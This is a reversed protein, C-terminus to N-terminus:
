QSPYQKQQIILTKIEDLSQKTDEQNKIIPQLNLMLIEKTVVTNKLDTKIEKLEEDRQKKREEVRTELTDIKAALAQQTLLNTTYVSACGIVAVIIAHIVSVRLNLTSWFQSKDKEGSMEKNDDTPTTGDGTKHIDSYESAVILKPAASM